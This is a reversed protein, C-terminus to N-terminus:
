SARYIITTKNRDAHFPFLHLGFSPNFATYLRQSHSIHQFLAALLQRRFEFMPHEIEVGVFPVGSAFRQEDADNAVQGVNHCLYTFSMPHRAVTQEWIRYAFMSSREPASGESGSVRYLRVGSMNAHISRLSSIVLNRMLWTLSRNSYALLNAYIQKLFIDVQRRLVAHPVRRQHVGANM